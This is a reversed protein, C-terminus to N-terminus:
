GNDVRKWVKVTINHVPDAPKAVGNVLTFHNGGFGIGRSWEGYTDVVGYDMLFSEDNRPRLVALAATSGVKLHEWEERSVEEWRLDLDHQAIFVRAELNSLEHELRTAETDVKVKRNWVEERQLLLKGLVAEKSPM